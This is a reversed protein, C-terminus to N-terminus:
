QGFMVFLCFFLHHKDTSFYAKMWWAKIDCGDMPCTVEAMYGKQSTDNSYQHVVGIHYVIGRLYSRTWFYFVFFCYQWRYYGCYSDHYALGVFPVGLLLYSGAHRCLINLKVAQRKGLPYTLWGM